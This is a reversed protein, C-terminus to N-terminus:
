GLAELLSHSDTEEPLKKPLAQRGALNEQYSGDVRTSCLGNLYVEGHGPCGRAPRASVQAWDDTVETWSWSLDPTAVHRLASHWLGWFHSEPPASKGCVPIDVKAPWCLDTLLSSYRLTCSQSPFVRIQMHSPLQCSFCHCNRQQNWRRLRMTIPTQSSHSISFLSARRTQNDRCLQAKKRQPCFLLYKSKFLFKELITRCNKKTIFLSVAPM